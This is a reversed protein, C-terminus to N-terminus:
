DYGRYMSKASKASILPLPDPVAIESPDIIGLPESTLGLATPKTVLAKVRASPMGLKFRHPFGVAFLPPFQRKGKLRGVFPIWQKGIVCTFSRYKCVPCRWGSHLIGHPILPEYFRKP